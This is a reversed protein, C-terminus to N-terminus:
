GLIFDAELQCDFGEGDEFTGDIYFYVASERSLPLGSYYFSDSYANIKLDGIDSEKILNTRYIVFGKDKDTKNTELKTLYQNKKEGEFLVIQLGEGSSFTGTVGYVRLYLIMGITRNPYKLKINRAQWSRDIVQRELITEYEVNSGTVQTDIPKDLRELIEQQQNEIAKLRTDIESPVYRDGDSDYYQPIPDGNRDRLIKKTNYAM